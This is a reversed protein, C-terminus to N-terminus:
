LESNESLIYIDQMALRTTNVNLMPATHSMLAFTPVESSKEM